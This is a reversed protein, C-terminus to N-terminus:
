KKGHVYDAFGTVDWLAFKVKIKGHKFLYFLQLPLSIPFLLTRLLDRAKGARLVTVKNQLLTNAIEKIDYVRVHTPDDCFNLTGEASWLSLSKPSPFEIYIEGGKKLKSSLRDIVELGNPLHEIVHSCIIVDFFDNELFSLDSRTLDAQFFKEMLSLDNDYVERDLGFYLAQPFWLKVKQAFHNGCGVDLLTFSRGKWGPYLKRLTTPCRFKSFFM